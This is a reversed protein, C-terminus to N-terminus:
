ASNGKNQKGPYIRPYMGRIMTKDEAPNIGSSYPIIYQWLKTMAIKDTRPCGRCLCSEVLVVAWWFLEGSPCSGM